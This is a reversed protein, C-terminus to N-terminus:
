KKWLNFIAWVPVVLIGILFTAILAMLDLGIINVMSSGGSYIMAPGMFIDPPFDHMGYVFRWLLGSVFHYILIGALPFWYAVRLVSTSQKLALLILSVLLLVAVISTLVTAVNAATELDNTMNNILQYSGWM